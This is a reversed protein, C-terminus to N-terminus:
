LSGLAEIGSSLRKGCQTLYYRPIFTVVTPHPPPIPLLPM